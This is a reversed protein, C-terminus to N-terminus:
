RMFHGFGSNVFESITPKAICGPTSEFVSGEAGEPIRRQACEAIEWDAPKSVKRSGDKAVGWEPNKAVASPGIATPAAKAITTPRVKAPPIPSSRQRHRVSDALPSFVIWSWRSEGRRPATGRASAVACLDPINASDGRAISDDVPGSGQPGSSNSTRCGVGKQLM